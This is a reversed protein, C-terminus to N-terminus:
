VKWVPGGYRALVEDSTLLVIGEVIAQALLLRDFPDRHFDPLAPLALTHASLVPLEAYDAEVLDHFLLTPDVDFNDRRGTGQKLAVEWISAASFLLSNQPDTLRSQAEASLKHPHRHAWILLHTDLLIKM